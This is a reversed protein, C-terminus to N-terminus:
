HFHLVLCCCSLVNRGLRTVKGDGGEGGGAGAEGEGVGFDGREQGLADCISCGVSLFAMSVLLAWVAMSVSAASGARAPQVHSSRPMIGMLSGDAAGSGSRSQPM